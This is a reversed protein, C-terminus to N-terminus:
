LGDGTEAAVPPSEGKRWLYTRWLTGAYYAVVLVGPLSVLLGPAFRPYELIAHHAQYTWALLMSVCLMRLLHTDARGLFLWGSGPAMVNLARFLVLTLSQSRLRLREILQLRMKPEAVGSVTKFCHACHVGKRCTRCMIRGCIKCQFVAKGRTVFNQRARVFVLVSAALCLGLWVGGPFVLLGSPVSATLLQTWGRNSIAAYLVSSSRLTPDMLRRNAPVNSGFLDDNEKLFNTVLTADASAARDLYEKNRSSSNQFLAAQSANFWLDVRNGARGSAQTLLSEARAYDFGLFALDATQIELLPQVTTSEPAAEVTELARRYNGQKKYQLSQALALYAADSSDRPKQERALQLVAPDFGRTSALHFAHLADQPDWARLLVRESWHAAPLLFLGALLWRMLRREGPNAHPWIWPFVAMAAIGMGAGAVAAGLLVMAIAAYRVQLDVNGPLREAWPHALRSFHRAFLVVLCAFGFYLFGLRLAHLVNYALLLQNGFFRLLRFTQSLYDWTEGLNLHWPGSAHISNELQAWPVWPCIPDFAAALDFAARARDYRGVRMHELGTWLSAAAFEPVRRYGQALLARRLNLRLSDALRAAGARDATKAAEYLWGPYAAWRRSLEALARDAASPQPANLLLAQAVLNWGRLTSDSNWFPGRLSDLWAATGSFDRRGSFLAAAAPHDSEFQFRAALAQRWQQLLADSTAGRVTGACLAAALLVGLFLRTRDFVLGPRRRFHPM